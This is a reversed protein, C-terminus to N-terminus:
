AGSPHARREFLQIIDWHQLQGNYRPGSNCKIVPNGRISKATRVSLLMSTLVFFIGRKVTSMMKVIHLNLTENEKSRIENQHWIDDTRQTVIVLFTMKFRRWRQQRKSCFTSSLCTQKAIWTAYTQNTAVIRTFSSEAYSNLVYPVLYPPEISALM